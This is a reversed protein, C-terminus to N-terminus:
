SNKLYRERLKNSSLTLELIKTYLEMMYVHYAFKKTVNSYVDSKKDHHKYGWVSLEAILTM